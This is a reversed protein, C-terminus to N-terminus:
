SSDEQTILYELALWMNPISPQERSRSSSNLNIRAKETVGSFAPIVAKLHSLSRPQRRTQLPTRQSQRQTFEAEIQFQLLCEKPASRQLFVCWWYLDAPM